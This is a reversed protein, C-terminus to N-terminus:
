DSAKNEEPVYGEAAKVAGEAFLYARMQEEIFGQAEPTGLNLRYENVLMKAHELWEGWAQKSIEQQIRLGLEGPWPPRELAELEAGLKRCQVLKSM